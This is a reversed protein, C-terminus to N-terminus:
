GAPAKSQDGGALRFRSDLADIWELEELTCIGNGGNLFRYGVLRKEFTREAQIAVVIEDCQADEDRLVALAPIPVALPGTDPAEANELYFV